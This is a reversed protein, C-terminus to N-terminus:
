EAQDQDSDTHFDEFLDSLPDFTVIESDSPFSDRVLIGHETSWDLHRLYGCWYIVLGPGFRNWYSWLQENLYTTHNEEDGFLAKSEIWNVISGNVSIPVDLKVDPTKDYGAARLDHEDQYSFNLRRLHRKLRREYECGIASKICESLFGYNEDKLTAKFVEYALDRDSILSSDKLLQTLQNKPANGPIFEAILSRATLTASFKNKRAINVIIGEPYETGPDGRKQAELKAKYTKLIEKRKASSTQFGYTKKVRKQYEQALISCLAVNRENPFKAELKRLTKDFDFEESEITNLIAAHVSRRM